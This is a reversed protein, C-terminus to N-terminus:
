EYDEMTMDKYTILLTRYAQSAFDKITKEFIGRFTEEGPFNELCEPVSCEEDIGFDSGDSQLARSTKRLVFDPAGKCYVRVKDESVKVVTAGMKRKSDFPIETLKKGDRELDRIYNQIGGMGSTQDQQELHQFMKFLGIETVNGKYMLPGTFKPDKGDNEDAYASSNWLVAQKMLEWVNLETNTEVQSTHAHIDNALQPGTGSTAKFVKGLVTCAM